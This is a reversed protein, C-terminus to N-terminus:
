KKKSATAAKKKKKTKPAVEAPTEEAPTEAPTEVAPTVEAPTEAPTEVAPTEEAPAPTTEEAPVAPDAPAEAPTEEAPAPTNEGAAEASRGLAEVVGSIQAEAPDVYGHDALIKEALAKAEDASTLAACEAPVLANLFAVLDAEREVPAGVSVEPVQAEAEAVAALVFNDIVVFGKGVKVQHTLVVGHSAVLDRIRARQRNDRLSSELHYPLVVTKGGGVRAIQRRGDRSVHLLLTSPTMNGVITRIEAYM